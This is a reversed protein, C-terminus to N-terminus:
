PPGCLRGRCLGLLQWSDMGVNTRAELALTGDARWEHKPGKMSPRKLVRGQHDLLLNAAERLESVRVMM